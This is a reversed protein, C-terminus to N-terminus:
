RPHKKGEKLIAADMDALTKAPGHYGTCGIVEALRSPVAHRASVPRLLVGAGLEEIVFETGTVWHHADRMPQPLVGQGKSSLRTKM